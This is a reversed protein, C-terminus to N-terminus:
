VTQVKLLNTSGAIGLPFGGTIVILDGNQAIGSERALRAGTTFLEELTPVHDIVVPHVGWYLLLKGAIAPNPTLALVIAKPRYKAVRAVTSGSSTLAVIAPAGLSQATRCASLAILEDTQASAWGEREHLLRAYDLSSETEHAITAMMRVAQAPYKGISTEASLMTADTGDYIANAVDSVEARTPLAANVMSELMQTATIVPKGARNCRGIVDKQVLPVKELPIDVGLDGRAVMIGDSTALIADFERVARVREIKAIIPVTGAAPMIGRVQNIDEPSDVFSLAIFDPKQGLAFELHARLNETIFPGSTPMGPVVLGRRETLVGGVLVVCKIETGAVDLVRLQLAGDDLLVLDGKKVDLPLTPFNVPVLTADGEVPRTTLTVEAGETLLASGGKLQGTRYKPGPLDILVSVPLGMQRSLERVTRVYGAHEEYTGHALNLRAINMGAQILQRLTNEAGSAPGITCVIKTRRGQWLTNEM